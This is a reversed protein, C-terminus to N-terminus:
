FEGLPSVLHFHEIVGLRRVNGFVCRTEHSMGVVLREGQVSEVSRKNGFTQVHRSHCSPSIDNVDLLAKRMGEKGRNKCGVNAPLGQVVVPVIPFVADEHAFRHVSEQAATQIEEFPGGNPQGVCYANRALPKATSAQVGTKAPIPKKM